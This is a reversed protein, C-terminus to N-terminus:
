VLNDMDYKGYTYFYSDYFMIDAYFNWSAKSKVLWCKNTLNRHKIFSTYLSTKFIFFSATM